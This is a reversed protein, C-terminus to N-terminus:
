TTLSANMYMPHEELRDRMYDSIREPVDPAGRVQGRQYDSIHEPVDPAGRVQGRM